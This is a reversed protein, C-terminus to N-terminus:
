RKKDGPESAKRAIVASILSPPVEGHVSKTPGDSYDARRCSTTDSNPMKAKGAAAVAVV